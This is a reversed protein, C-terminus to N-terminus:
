KPPESPGYGLTDIDEDSLRSSEYRPAGSHAGRTDALDGSSELEVEDAGLRAVGDRDDVDEGLDLPDADEDDYADASDARLDDDELDDDDEDDDLALEVIESDELDEGILAEDDDEDGVARTADFLSPMDEFTLGDRGAIRDSDPSQNDEDWVEALDQGDLEPTDPM